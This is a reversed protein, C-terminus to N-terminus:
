RSNKWQKQVYTHLFAVLILFSAMYYFRYIKIMHGIFYVTIFGFNLHTGLSGEKGNSKTVLLLIAIWFHYDLKNQWSTAGVEVVAQDIARSLSLWLM